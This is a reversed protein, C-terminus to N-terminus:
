AQIPYETNTSPARSHLLCGLEANARAHGELLRFRREFETHDSADLYLEGRAVRTPDAPDQYDAYLRREIGDFVTWDMMLESKGLLSQRMVVKIEIGADAHSKIVMRRMEDGERELLARDVIFIRKICVGRQVARVNEEFYLVERPDNTWRTEEFASVGFVTAGCKMKQIEGIILDFYEAEGLPVVGREISEIQACAQRLVKQAFIAHPGSLHAVKSAISAARGSGDFVSRLLEASIRSVHLKINATTLPLLVGMVGAFWAVDQSVGLRTLLAAVLLLALGGIVDVSLDAPSSGKAKPM